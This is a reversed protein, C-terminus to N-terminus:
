KKFSCKCWEVTCEIWIFTMFFDCYCCFDLTKKNNKSSSPIVRIRIRRIRFRFVAQLWCHIPDSIELMFKCFIYFEKGIHDSGSIVYHQLNRGSGSKFGCSTYVYMNYTHHSLHHLHVVSLLWLSTVIVASILPKRIIKAQHHSSGSGSGVSGSGSCQKYDVIFQIM